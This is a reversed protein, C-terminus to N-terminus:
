GKLKSMEVCFAAGNIAPKACNNQVMYSCITIIAESWKPMSSNFSPSLELNKYVMEFIEDWLYDPVMTPLVRALKLWDDSKISDVLVTKLEDTVASGSPPRLTGSASNQQLSQIISRVDPYFANMHEYILDSSPVKINEAVLMKALNIVVQRRDPSDITLKQCRSKIAPDIKHVHNCTLIFRAYEEFTEMYDRLIGQANQTLYDAEQLLVLKYAGSAYSSIHNKIMERMDDVSNNDSANIVLVDTDYDDPNICTKALIFALTSKGTGAPGSLLLHPINKTSIINTVLEKDSDSTFAYDAVNSPRYKMCWIKDVASPVM